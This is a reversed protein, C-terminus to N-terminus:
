ISNLVKEVQEKVKTALEDHIKGLVQFVEERTERQAGAIDRGLSRVMRDQWGEYKSNDLHTWFTRAFKFDLESLKQVPESMIETVWEKHKPTSCSELTHFRMAAKSTVYSPTSGYNGGVSAAGDRLLPNFVNIPRNVLIQQYNVGLRYRQADPYAFFRAQLMPDESPEIGPVLHSPSFAAQEIEDFYNEPNRNLTLKGFPRADVTGLDAPYTGMDWHKTMDLINYGFKQVDGPDIVQVKATYTPNDGRDIANYLDRSALDPDNGTLLPIDEDSHNKYGLDAELYMHVYKFTGDQMVWKHAHGMYGNMYRYSSFTGYDSYLWMVMHLSEQNQVVWDWFRTSDRMNTRPDRKLAHVLGPFKIPDRIFFFPVNNWVWDWNGEATYCKVAFGRADRVSDASGREGATTSFRALCPTKKGVGTLMDISCIDSIDHTVEFEGYAGAGKAHVVREPIRERNFHSLLDILHFDRLLLMNSARLSTDPKGAPCGNSTTYLPSKRSVVDDKLITNHSVASFTM